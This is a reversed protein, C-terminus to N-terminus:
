IQKEWQAIEGTVVIFLPHPKATIVSQLLHYKVIDRVALKKQLHQWEYNIQQDTVLIQEVDNEATIIKMKDFQYGRQTAEQQVISLYYSINALPHLSNKFRQLQPHNKYGKTQGLLVKQALLAERWLAVLGKSDLYNPHLSWLRM